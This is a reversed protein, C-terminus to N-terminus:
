GNAPADASSRSSAGVDRGATESSRWFSRAHRVLRGPINLIHFRVTKAKAVVWDGGLAVKFLAFVTFALIRIAVWVANPEFKSCPM